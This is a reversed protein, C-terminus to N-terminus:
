ATSFQIKAFASLDAVSNFSAKTTNPLSQNAPWVVGSSIVITTILCTQNIIFLFSLKYFSRILDIFFKMLENKIKSKTHTPPMFPNCAWDLILILSENILISFNLSLDLFALPYKIKAKFKCAILSSVVNIKRLFASIKAM